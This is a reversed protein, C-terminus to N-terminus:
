ALPRSAFNKTATGSSCQRVSALEHFKRLHRRHARGTGATPQRRWDEDETRVYGVPVQTMVMGRRVKQRHAEMARQRLLSIEFESM